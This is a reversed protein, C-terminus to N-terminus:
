QNIYKKFEKIKLKIKIKMTDAERKLGIKERECENMVRKVKEEM